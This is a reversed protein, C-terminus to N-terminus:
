LTESCIVHHILDPATVHWERFNPLSHAARVLVHAVVNASRHAFCVLVEHFHKFLEICDRVITHFFSIGNVGKCARALVQSDTEFICYRLGKDRLWILTERLCVAEAERPPLLVDQRRSMAM